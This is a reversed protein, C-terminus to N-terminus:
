GTVSQQHKWWRSLSCASCRRRWSSLWARLQRQGAQACAKFWASQHTQIAPQGILGTKIAGLGLLQKRLPADGHVALDTTIAQVFDSAELLDVEVLLGQLGCLRGAVVQQVLWASDDASGPMALGLRADVQQLNRLSLFQVEGSAQVQIGAAQQQDAVVAQPRAAQGQRAAAQGLV